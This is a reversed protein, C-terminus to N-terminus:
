CCPWPFSNPGLLFEAVGMMMMMWGEHDALPQQNVRAIIAQLLAEFFFLLSIKSPLSIKSFYIYNKFNCDSM